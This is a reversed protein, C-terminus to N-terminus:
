VTLVGPSKYSDDQVNEFRIMGIEDQIYIYIYIYVPDLM